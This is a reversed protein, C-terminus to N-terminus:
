ASSSLFEFSSRLCDFPDRRCIDQEVAYWETGAAECAPLIHEWDLNGEGVPAMVAENGVVERDKVHIVPIRVRSREVLREPNIGADAAWYLDLELLFDPGGQELLIDFHTQRDPGSREFELAHNHYGFRLGARKLRAIVDAADRTFQAYGAAGQEQYSAPLTGIATFDCGLAQHFDIEAETREALDAWARHTAICRLGHDDLMRRAQAASVAPREGNMAGVASLQVSRYGIASIKALAAAFEKETETFERVTYM